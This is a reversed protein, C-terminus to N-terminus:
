CMQYQWVGHETSTVVSKRPWRRANLHLIRRISKALFTNNFFIAKQEQMYHEATKYVTGGININIEHFNSFPHHKGFFTYAYENEKYCSKIPDLEPPLSHLNYKPRVTYLTHGVYLKDQKLKTIDRYKDHAKALRLIPLLERKRSAIEGPLDEHMTIKKSLMEKNSMIHQQDNENPFHAIIDRKKGPTPVGLHHCRGITINKGNPLKALEDELKKKTEWSKEKFSEEIGTFVSNNRRQYTPVNKHNEPQKTPKQATVIWRPLM